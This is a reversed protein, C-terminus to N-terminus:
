PRAQAYIDPLDKKGMNYSNCIDIYIYLASFDDTQGDTQGCKKTCQYSLWTLVLQLPVQEFLFSHRQPDCLKNKFIRHMRHSMWVLTCFASTYAVVAM